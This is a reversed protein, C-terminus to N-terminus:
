PERDIASEDVDQLDLYQKTQADIKQLIGKLRECNHWLYGMALIGAVCGVLLRLEIPDLRIPTHGDEM